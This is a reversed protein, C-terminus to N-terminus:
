KILADIQNLIAQKGQFGVLESVKQGDKMFVVFPINRINFKASLAPNEEVDVKCIKVQGKREKAIEELVPGLKICPGCWAAWFDVLVPITSEIVETQFNKDTVHHVQDSMNYKEKSYM